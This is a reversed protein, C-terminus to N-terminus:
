LQNISCQKSRWIAEKALGESINGTIIRGLYHRECKQQQQHRPILYCPVQSSYQVTTHMKYNTTRFIPSKKPLVTQIASITPAQSVRM